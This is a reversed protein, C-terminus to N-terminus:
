IVPCTSNTSPPALTPRTFRHHPQFFIAEHDSFLRPGFRLLALAHIETIVKLLTDLNQLEIGVGNTLDGLVFVREERCQNEKGNRPERDTGAAITEFREDESRDEHRQQREDEDTKETDERSEKSARRAKESKITRDPQGYRDLPHM